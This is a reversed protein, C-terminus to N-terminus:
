LILEAIIGNVQLSLPKTQTVYVKPDRSYGLLKFEKKGTWAATPNYAYGGVVVHSTSILDLVAASV